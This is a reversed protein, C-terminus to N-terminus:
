KDCAESALKAYGAIDELHQNYGSRPGTTLRAIKLIMMDVALRLRPNDTAFGLPVAECMKNWVAANHEFSGHTKEREQLLPDRPKDHEFLPMANVMFELPGIKNLAGPAYDWNCRPCRM